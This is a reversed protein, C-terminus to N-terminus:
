RTVAVPPRTNMVTPQNLYSLRVLDDLRDESLTTNRVCPANGKGTYKFTRTKGDLGAFDFANPDTCKTVTGAIWGHEEDPIWLEAGVKVATNDM